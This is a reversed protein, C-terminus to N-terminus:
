SLRDTVRKVLDDCCGSVEISLNDRSKGKLLIKPAQNHESCRISGVSEKISNGIEQIMASELADAINNPNLKKGNIEFSIEIM